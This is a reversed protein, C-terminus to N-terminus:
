RQIVHLNHHKVSKLNHKDKPTKKKYIQYGVVVWDFLSLNIGSFDGLCPEISAFKKAPLDRIDEFRYMKDPSEVTIGLYVNDPYTFERYRKPNKTIFVFTHQSAERTVDIVQEIWEAPVWDGFLDAFACVFIVAPKRVKLPESLAEPFFQPQEYDAIWKRETVWRRAYCYPCGHKCGIVPSWNSNYWGGSAVM